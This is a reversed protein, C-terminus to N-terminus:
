GEKIEMKLIIEYLIELTNICDAIENRINILTNKKDKYKETILKFVENKLENHERNYYNFQIIYSNTDFLRRHYGKDIVGIFMKEIKLM